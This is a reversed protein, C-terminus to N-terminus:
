NACNLIQTHPSQNWIQYSGQKEYRTVTKKIREVLKGDTDFTETVTEEVIKVTEPATYTPYISGGGVYTHTQAYDERGLTTQVTMDAGPSDFGGIVQKDSLPM